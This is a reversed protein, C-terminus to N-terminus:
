TFGVGQLDTQRSDMAWFYNANVRRSVLDIPNYLGIAGFFADFYATKDLSVLTAVLSLRFTSEYNSGNKASIYQIIM